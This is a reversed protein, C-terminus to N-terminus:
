KARKYTVEVVTFPKGFQVEDITLVHTDDDVVTTQFRVTKGHEGTSPEDMKGFMTLVKGTQDLGGTFNIPGTNFSDLWLGVFQKNYNDYTSLGFGQMPMGMMQGDYHEELWRGDILWKFESRGKYEMGQAGPMGTIKTTTDWAGVWKEFFKHNPGPKLLAQMQQMMDQMDPQAAAAKDPNPMNTLPHQGDGGPQGPRDKGPKNQSQHSTTTSDPQTLAVLSGGALASLVVLAVPCLPCKM